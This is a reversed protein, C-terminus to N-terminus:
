PAVKILTMFKVITEAYRVDEANNPRLLHILTNREILTCSSSALVYNKIYNRNKKCKDRMQTIRTRVVSASTHKITDIAKTRNVTAQQQPVGPPRASRAVFTIPLIQCRQDFPCVTPDDRLLGIVAGQDNFVPLGITILIAGADEDIIPKHFHVDSGNLTGQLTKGEIIASVTNSQRGIPAVPINKTNILFTCSISDGSITKPLPACRRADM